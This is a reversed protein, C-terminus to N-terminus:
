TENRTAMLAEHVKRLTENTQKQRNTIIAVAIGGGAAIISTLIATLFLWVNQQTDVIVKVVTPEPM